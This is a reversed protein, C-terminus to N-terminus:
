LELYKYKESCHLQLLVVAWCYILNPSIVVSPLLDSILPKCHGEIQQGQEINGKRNLAANPMLGACVLAFCRKYESMDTSM